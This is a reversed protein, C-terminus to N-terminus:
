LLFLTCSLAFRLLSEAASSCQTVNTQLMLPPICKSRTSKIICEFSTKRRVYVRQMSQESRINDTNFTCAIPLQLSCSFDLEHALKRNSQDRADSIAYPIVTREESEIEMVLNQIARFCPWVKAKRSILRM